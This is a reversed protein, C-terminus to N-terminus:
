YPEMDLYAECLMIFCAIHLITNSHLNQLELGYYFLLGRVFPDLPLGFGREYFSALVVIDGDRPAPADGGEELRWGSVSDLPLFGKKELDKLCERTIFSLPSADLLFPFFFVSPLNAYSRLLSELPFLRCISLRSPGTLLISESHRQKRNTRLFLSAFHCRSHPAGRVVGSLGDCRYGEWRLRRL